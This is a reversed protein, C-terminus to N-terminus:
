PRPGPAGRGPWFRGPYWPQQRLWAVTDQGDEREQFPSFHGGSDQAGRCSQIVVQYGRAALPRCYLRRWLRRRGYPTRLLVVPADPQGDPAYRDARLLVRRADAGGPRRAGQGQALDGAAVWAV